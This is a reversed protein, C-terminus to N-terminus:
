MEREEGTTSNYIDLLVTEPTKADIELYAAKNKESEFYIKLADAGSGEIVFHANAVDAVENGSIPDVTTVRM